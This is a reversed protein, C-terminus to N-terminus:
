NCLHALIVGYMVEFSSEPMRLMAMSNIDDHARTSSSNAILKNVECQVSAINVEPLAISVRVM